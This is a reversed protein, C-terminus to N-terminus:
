FKCLKAQLKNIRDNDDDAAARLIEAEITLRDLLNEIEQSPENLIKLWSKLYIILNEKKSYYSKEETNIGSNELIAKNTMYEVHVIDEPRFGAENMAKFIGDLPMGTITCRAQALNKWTNYYKETDTDRAEIAKIYQPVKNKEQRNLQVIEDRTKGLLSQVILGCNCSPTENWEYRIYDKELATIVEVLAKKLPKVAKLPAPPPTPAPFTKKNWFRM